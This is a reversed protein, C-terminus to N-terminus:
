PCVGGGCIAWIPGIYYKWYGAVFWIWVGALGGLPWNEPYNESPGVEISMGTDKHLLTLVDNASRVTSEGGRLSRLVRVEEGPLVKISLLVGGV